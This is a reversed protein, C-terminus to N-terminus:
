GVLRLPGSGPVSQHRRWAQLLERFPAFLGSFPSYCGLVRFFSTTSGPAGSRLHVQIALRPLGQSVPQGGPIGLGLRSFRAFGQVYASCMSLGPRSRSFRMPVKSIPGGGQGGLGLRSFRAFDQVWPPGPKELNPELGPGQFACRFRSCPSAV